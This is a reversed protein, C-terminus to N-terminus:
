TPMAFTIFVRYQKDVKKVKIKELEMSNGVESNSGKQRRLFGLPDFLEAFRKARSKAELEEDEKAFENSNKITENDMDAIDKTRDPFNPFEPFDDSDGDFDNTESESEELEKRLNEVM